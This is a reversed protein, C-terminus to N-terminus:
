RHHKCGIGCRHASLQRCIIKIIFFLSLFIIRAAPDITKQIRSHFIPAVTALLFKINFIGSGHCVTCTNRSFQVFASKQCATAVESKCMIAPKVAATKIPSIQPTREPLKATKLVSVEGIISSIRETGTAANITSAQSQIGM